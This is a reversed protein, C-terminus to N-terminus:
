TRTIAPQLLLNAGGVKTGEVVIHHNLEKDLRYNECGESADDADSKPKICRVEPTDQHFEGESRVRHNGEDCKDKRPQDAHYEPEEWCM